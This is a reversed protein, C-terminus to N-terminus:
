NKKKDEVTRDKKDVVTKDKQEIRARTETEPETGKRDINHLRFVFAMDTLIYLFSNKIKITLM